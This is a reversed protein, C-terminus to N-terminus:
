LNKLTEILKVKAYQKQIKNYLSAGFLMNVETAKSHAMLDDLSEKIDKVTIKKGPYKYENGSDEIQDLIGM